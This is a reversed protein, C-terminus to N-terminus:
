VFRVNGDERLLWPTFAGGPKRRIAVTLRRSELDQGVVTYTREVFGAETAGRLVIHQGPQVVPYPRDDRLTIDVRYILRELGREDRARTIPKVSAAAPYWAVEGLAEKLVPVCSGCQLGCGLAEGLSAVTAERDAAIAEDIEAFTVGACLCAM